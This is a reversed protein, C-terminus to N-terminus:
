PYLVSGEAPLDRGEGGGGCAVLTSAVSQLWCQKVLNSLKM